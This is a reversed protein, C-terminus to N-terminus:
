AGARGSGVHGPDLSAELLACVGSGLSYLNFAMMCRDMKGQLGSSAQWWMLAAAGGFSLGLMGISDRSKSAQKAVACLGAQRRAGERLISLLSRCNVSSATTCVVPNDSTKWSQQAPHTTGQQGALAM